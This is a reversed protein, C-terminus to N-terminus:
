TSLVADAVVAVVVPAASGPFPLLLGDGLGDGDGVCAASGRTIAVSPAYAAWGVVRPVLPPTALESQTPTNSFRRSSRKPPMPRCKMVPRPLMDADPPVAMPVFSASRSGATPPPVGTVSVATRTACVVYREARVFTGSSASPVGPKKSRLNSAWGTATLTPSFSFAGQVDAEGCDTSSGMVTAFIPDCSTKVVPAPSSNELRVLVM